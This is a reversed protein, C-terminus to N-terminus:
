EPLKLLDNLSQDGIVLDVIAPEGKKNISVSLFATRNTNGERLIQEARKADAEPIYYRNMSDQYSSLMFGDCQTKATSCSTKHVKPVRAGTKILCLCCERDYTCANKKMDMDYSVRMRLYHGRLLDRPDYGQLEFNWQEGNQIHYEARVILLCLVVFPLAVAFLAM